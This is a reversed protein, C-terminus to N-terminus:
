VAPALAPVNWRLPPMLGAARAFFFFFAGGFATRV